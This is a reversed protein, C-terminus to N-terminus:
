VVSKRDLSGGAVRPEVIVRRRAYDVILRSGEFVANGIVGDIDTRGLFGKSEGGLGTTPSAIRLHGLELQQLRVITGHLEGVLGTGIPAEIAPSVSALGHQEVFPATLILCLGSAGTDLLLRAPIARRGRAKIKARLLPLDADPTFPVATGPGAYRFSAADLLRVRRTPYDIEVVFRHLVDHGVLGQQLRGSAESLGGLPYLATRYRDLQLDGLREPNVVLDYTVVDHRHRGHYTRVYQDRRRDTDDVVKEADAPAVGLREAALRIRWPKSAVVYVHLADPRQALLAQAGRGVLVVRGHAAAEAIIRETLKVITTEDQEARPVADSTIFMEPSAVALTRALRELLGPAREEHEAVTAPALGARRAVEDVFENDIVTWALAAAVQRAVAAGGSAYQRTITIVPPAM